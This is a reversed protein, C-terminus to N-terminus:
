KTLQAKQSIYSDPCDTDDGSKSNDFWVSWCHVLSGIHGYLSSTTPEIDLSYVSMGM